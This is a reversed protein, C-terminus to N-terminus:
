SLSGENIHNRFDKPSIGTVKKFVKSYYFASEFGFQEAVEYIKLDPQKLMEKSASIKQQSIYENIGVEMYKKFLQSLYNPSVHFTEALDTLAIREHLHEAIYKKVNEVLFNKQDKAHSEFEECLGQELTNLWHIISPITKQRYLSRYGDPEHNFIADAIDAGNSLLTLTLHLISGSVDMAQTMHVNDASLLDTIGSLTEHLASEDLDEFARALDNRFVSLNFVNRLNNTDPIDDFFIIQDEISVYSSIQKADYYSSSVDMLESVIHGVTALLRVSYYSYLMSFTERLATAIKNSFAEQTDNNSYFLIAFFRNDLPIIHCDVYKEILETFMHLTSSYLASNNESKDDPVIEVQAVCYFHYDLEIELSKTQLMLQEPSEFLNNLLRIFFRESFLMVDLSDVSSITNQQLVSDVVKKASHLANTLLEPTLDIKVLYDIAQFSLAEKAYHFDEYSTLIIFVPLRGYTERCKKALELGSLCPMQIDTIVIEPMFNEIMEYAVDGNAATGCIEFGLANWDIMSKLGIQVLPEDDAILVKIM